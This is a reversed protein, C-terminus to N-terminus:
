NCSSKSAPISNLSGKSNVGTNVAEKVLKSILSVADSVAKLKPAKNSKAIKLIAKAKAESAKSLSILGDNSSQIAAKDSATSVTVCFSSTCSLVVPPFATYTKSWVQHYLDEAQINTNKIYNNLSALDKKSLKSNNGAILLQRNVKIVNNRLSNANIDLALQKGEINVSQCAVCSQGDGDCVGCRDVKATGNVVGRCDKACSQSALISSCSTSIGFSNTVTLNINCSIASTNTGSPATILSIVPSALTPNNFTAGQCNSSWSYSVVGNRNPDSSGMGNLQVSIPTSSCTM